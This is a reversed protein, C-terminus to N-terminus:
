QMSSRPAVPQNDNSITVEVRRNQAYADESSGQVAPKEEGFSVAEIQADSAGVLTSECSKRTRMPGSRACGYLALMKLMEALLKPESDAM